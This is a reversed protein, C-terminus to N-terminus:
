RLDVGVEVLLARDRAGDVLRTIGQEFRVGIALPSAPLALEAGTSAGVGFRHIDRADGLRLEGRVQSIWALSLVDGRRGFITVGAGVSAGLVDVPESRTAGTPAGHKATMADGGRQSGDLRLAVFAFDYAYARATAAIALGARAASAGDDFMGAGLRLGLWLARPAAARHQVELPDDIAAGSPPDPIGAYKGRILSPHKVDPPPATTEEGLEGEEGFDVVQPRRGGPSAPADDAQAVAPALGAGAGLLACGLMAFRAM